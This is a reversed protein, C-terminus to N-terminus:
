FILYWSFKTDGYLDAIHAETPMFYHHKSRLFYALFLFLGNRSPPVNITAWGWKSEHFTCKSMNSWLRTNTSTQKPWSDYQIMNFCLKYHLFLGKIYKEVVVSETGGDRKQNTSFPVQAQALRLMNLINIETKFM